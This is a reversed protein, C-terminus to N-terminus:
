DLTEESNRLACDAPSAQDKALREDRRFVTACYPCILSEDDGMNLYVHPHDQPPAAGACKFERAGIRVEQLGRDNKFKPFDQKSDANVFSPKM